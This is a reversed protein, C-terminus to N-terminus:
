SSLQPPPTPQSQTSKILLYKNSQNLAIRGLIDTAIFDPIIDTRMLDPINISDKNKLWSEVRAENKFMSTNKWEQSKMKSDAWCINIAGECSSDEAISLGMEKLQEFVERTVGGKFQYCMSGCLAHERCQNIIYAVYEKTCSHSKSIAQLQERIGM